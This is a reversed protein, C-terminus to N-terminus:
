IWAATAETWDLGWVAGSDSLHATAIRLAWTWAMQIPLQPLARLVGRLKRMINAAFGRERCVWEDMVLLHASLGKFSRAMAPAIGNTRGCPQCRGREDRGVLVDSVPKRASGAGPKSGV